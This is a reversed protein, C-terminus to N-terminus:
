NAAELVGSTVVSILPLPAGGELVFETGPLPAGGALLSRVSLDALGVWPGLRSFPSTSYDEIIYAAAGGGFIGPVSDPNPNTAPDASTPPVNDGFIAGWTEAYPTVTVLSMAFDQNLGLSGSSGSLPAWNNARANPYLVMGMNLAPGLTSNQYSGGSAILVTSQNFHASSGSIVPSRGGWTGGPGGEVSFENATFSGSIGIEALGLGPGPGDCIPSIYVDEGEEKECFEMSAYLSDPDEQFGVFQHYDPPAPTEESDLIDAPDNIPSGPFV